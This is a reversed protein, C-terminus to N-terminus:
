RRPDTITNLGMPLEGAPEVDTVQYVLCTTNICAGNAPDLLCGCLRCTAKQGCTPCCRNMQVQAKLRARENERVLAEHPDAPPDFSVPAKPHQLLIATPM